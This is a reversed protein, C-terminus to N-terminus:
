LLHSENIQLFVFCVSLTILAGWLSGLFVEKQHSNQGESVFVVGLVPWLGLGYVGFGCNLAGPSSLM